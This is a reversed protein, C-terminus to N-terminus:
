STMVRLVQVDKPFDSLLSTETSPTASYRQTPLDCTHVTKMQSVETQTFSEEM